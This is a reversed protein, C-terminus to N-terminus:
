FYMTNFGSDELQKVLLKKQECRVITAQADFHAYFLAKAEDVTREGLWLQEHVRSELRLGLLGDVYAEKNESIANYTLLLDSEDVVTGIPFAAAGMLDAQEHANNGYGREQHWQVFHPMMRVFMHRKAVAEEPTVGLVSKWRGLVKRHVVYAQCFRPDGGLVQGLIWRGSLWEESTLESHVRSSPVFIYETIPQGGRTDHAEHASPDTYVVTGQASITQVVAHAMALWASEEWHNPDLPIKYLKYGRVLTGGSSALLTRLNRCWDSRPQTGTQMRRPPPDSRKRLQPLLRSKRKTYAKTTMCTPAGRLKLFDPLDAETRELNVQSMREKM